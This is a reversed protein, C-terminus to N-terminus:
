QAVTVRLGVAPNWGLPGALACAGAARRIAARRGAMRRGAM